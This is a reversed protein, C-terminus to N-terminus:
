KGEAELSHVNEQIYWTPKYRFQRQLFNRKDLIGKQRRGVSLALELMVEDSFGERVQQFM